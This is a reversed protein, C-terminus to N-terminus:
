VTVERLNLNAARQLMLATRTASLVQDTNLEGPQSKGAIDNIFAQLYGGPRGASLPVRRYSDVSKLAITVNNATAATELVGDRGWFTCRWYFPLSYGSNDPAFYSVDGLVGCGNEMTLMMQAGDKFHSFDPIFANWTRAANIVSFQHDTLWPLLDIAHIGIDNLTGGHKGPEFYWNPRVGYLLPHQGSFSIAQTPGIRHIQERVSCFQPTDRLDLMCGVKLQNQISLGKIEAFEELSTCLPKDSIVHKGRKLATIVLTGRRTYYDGIAVADCPGSELMEIYHEHTIKIHKKMIIERRVEPNEECAAVIEIEPHSQARSYLDYIHGHRFGVFALKLPM